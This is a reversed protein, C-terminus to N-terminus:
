IGVFRLRNVYDVAPAIFENTQPLLYLGMKGNSEIIGGPGDIMSGSVAESRTYAVFVDNEPLHEGVYLEINGNIHGVHLWRGVAVPKQLVQISKTLHTLIKVFMIGSIFCVNGTGRRTRSAILNCARSVQIPFHHYPSTWSSFSHLEEDYTVNVVGPLGFIIDEAEAISKVEQCDAFTAKSVNFNLENIRNPNFNRVIDFPGISGEDLKPKLVEIRLVNATDQYTAFLPSKM